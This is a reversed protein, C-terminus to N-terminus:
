CAESILYSFHIARCYFKSVSRETEGMPLFRFQVNKLLKPVIKLSWPCWASLCQSEKGKEMSAKNESAKISVKM